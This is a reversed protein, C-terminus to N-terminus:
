RARRYLKEAADVEQYRGEYGSFRLTEQRGLGLIGFPVLSEHFLRHVRRQLSRDFYILVNRCLIVHFEAFSRDTVLDHQSLVVRELLGPDFLAGDYHATYYDSFSRMGGSALYNHTYEQMRDLPFIGARGRELVLENIDTAYIRARQLLDEEQLLIALSFVEEGTSCGAHWIRTFPYTHLLPVVTERFALYFSPDRFMTTVNVSLDLLLKEMVDPYHLVREQLASLTRLDEAEMRKWLRRKLSARAYGRFDFGYQRYIGELLLDIELREVEPAYGRPTDALAM